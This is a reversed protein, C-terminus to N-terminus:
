DRSSRRVEEQKEYNEKILPIIEKLPIKLTHVSTIFTEIAESLLKERVKQIVKKDKTIKSQMNGDTYILGAEEMEKYARQVTNPNIKLKSALERRSPIETGMELAGSAIQEKFYQIVQIYVPARSDLKLRMEGVGVKVLYKLSM